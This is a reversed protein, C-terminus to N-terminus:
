PRADAQSPPKLPLLPNYEWEWPVGTEGLLAKVLSPFLRAGVGSNTLMLVCRKSRKLCILKNDTQDDHGGKYVAPGQPGDFAGWGLAASLHVRDRTANPGEVLTPFQHAGTIPLQGRWMETASSPTLGWGSVVAATWRSLDAITTDMSGAARVGGRKQHPLQVGKDDFGESVDSAFAERWNLSTRSMGLPQFIRRQMEEGVDLGLGHEIAFQLLNIGEGSYAYRAGPQFHFRLREGPELFRFNAFGSSHTLLMRPTLAKWRDDGALEKYKDYDPLPKPLLQAIPQDLNLRGEDVMQMVLDAFVAKTLSAGYMVTDTHLARPAPTKAAVGYAAVYAVKGNDILALALGPTASEVRAHEALADIAAPTLRQGHPGPFGATALAAAAFAALLM